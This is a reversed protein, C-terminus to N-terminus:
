ADYSSFVILHLFKIFFGDWLGLPGGYRAGTVIYDSVDMYKWQMQYVSHKRFFNLERGILNCLYEGISHLEM